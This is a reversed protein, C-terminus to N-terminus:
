ARSERARLLGTPRLLLFLILLVLAFPTVTVVVLATDCLIPIGNDCISYMFSDVGVFNPDPTYTITGDGPNVSVSWGASGM